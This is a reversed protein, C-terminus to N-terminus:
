CICTHNVKFPYESHFPLQLLFFLYFPDRYYYLPKLMCQKCCELFNLPEPVLLESPLIVLKSGKKM